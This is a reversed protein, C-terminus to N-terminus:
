LLEVQVMGQMGAYDGESSWRYHEPEDVLGAKVPNM